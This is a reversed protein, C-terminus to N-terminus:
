HGCTPTGARKACTLWGNPYRTKFLLKWCVGDLDVAWLWAKDSEYDSDIRFCVKIVIHEAIDKHPTWNLSLVPNNNQVWEPYVLEPECKYGTKITISDLVLTAYLIRNVYTLNVQNQYGPVHFMRGLKIPQTDQVSRLLQDTVNLATDVTERRVISGDEKIVIEKM